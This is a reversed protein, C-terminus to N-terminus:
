PQKVVHLVWDKYQLAGPYDEPTGFARIGGGAVEGGSAEKQNSLDSWTFKFRDSASSSRLDLKLTGGWRSYVLYEQGPIASCYKAAYESVLEPHPELRWWEVGKLFKAMFGLANAGPYHVTDVDKPEIPWSGLRANGPRNPNPIYAWWQHGGGYSHGAAGSLFATWAGFRIDEAPASGEIFEYWPETVVIPKGPARAYAAAVVQPILENRWKGHGTQSQDFDLWPEDHIVEATSWQASNGMQGASWAPPTNHVGIAHRYPDEARMLAGLEKWFQLGMGGYDYMNYEGAVTWIVNYAALRHVVYRAWRRVKEPGAQQNLNRASWWPHIWVTLGKSNAYAIFMEANHIQEFDPADYNRGAMFAGNNAGFFLQGLTFGQEARGDVVKQFRDFPFLKGGSRQAFGWWTDAIWLFPTGDAYEFYRGARPGNKAVRVFGRRTSNAAVEEASWAVCRFSGKVGQLSADASSAAYSWEGAAPPAFRAKWTKGGDWFGAVAYRMGSAEGSSGTFTLTVWPKGGDPLGETYANAFEKAATMEVEYPAWQRVTREPQPAASAARVMWVMSVVLSLRKM